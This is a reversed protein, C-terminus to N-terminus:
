GTQPHLDPAFKESRRLASTRLIPAYGFNPPLAGAFSVEGVIITTSNVVMTTITVMITVTITEPMLGTTAVMVTTTTVVTPM